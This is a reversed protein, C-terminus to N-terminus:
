RVEELLMVREAFETGAEILHDPFYMIRYKTSTSEPLEVNVGLKRGLKRPMYLMARCMRISYAQDITSPEYLCLFLRNPHECPIHYDAVNLSEQKIVALCGWKKGKRRRTWKNLRYEQRVGVPLSSSFFRGRDEKVVKYGELLKM